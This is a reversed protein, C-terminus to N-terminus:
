AAWPVTAIVGNFRVRYEGNHNCLRLICLELYWVSLLWAEHMGHPDGDYAPDRDGPHVVQNRMATIAHPGDGWSAGKMNRLHKLDAPIDLPIGCHRLLLRIKDSAPLAKFGGKSLVRADQVLCQWALLELANQCLVLAGETGGARRNASVYWHIALRISKKWHPDLLKDHLGSALSLLAEARLPDLWSHVREYAGQRPAEWTRGKVQGSEDLHQQLHLGGWAGRAFSLLWFLTDVAQEADVAHFASENTRRLVGVHTVAFTGFTKLHEHVGAIDTRARLILSWGGFEVFVANTPCPGRFLVATRNQHLLPLNLVAVGIASLGHAEGLVVTTKTPQAVLSFDVFGQMSLVVLEIFDTCEAPRLWIDDPQAGGFAWSGQGGLSVEAEIRVRNTPSIDLVVSYEAAGTLTGARM